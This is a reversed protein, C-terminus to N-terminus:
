SSRIYFSTLLYLPAVLLRVKFTEVFGGIGKDKLKNGNETESNNVSTPQDGPHLSGYRNSGTRQQPDDPNNLSQSEQGLLPASEEEDCRKAKSHIVRSGLIFVCLLTLIAIRSAQLGLSTM